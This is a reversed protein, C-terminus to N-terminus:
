QKEEKKDTNKPENRVVFYFIVIDKLLDIVKDKNDASWAFHILCVGAAVTLLWRGSTIQSVVIDITDMIRDIFLLAQSNDKNKQIEETM